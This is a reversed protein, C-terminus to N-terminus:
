PKKTTLEIVNVETERPLKLSVMIHDLEPKSPALIMFSQGLVTACCGSGLSLYRANDKPSNDEPIGAHLSLNHTAQGALLAYTKTHIDKSWGITFKAIHCM